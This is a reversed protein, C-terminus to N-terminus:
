YHADEEEDDDDDGDDWADSDELEDDDDQDYTLEIDLEELMTGLTEIINSPEEGDWSTFVEILFDDAAGDSMEEIALVDDESLRTLAEEAFSEGGDDLEFSEVAQRRLVEVDIRSLHIQM